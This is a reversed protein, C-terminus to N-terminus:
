LFVYLLIVSVIIIFFSNIQAIAHRDIVVAMASSPIHSGLRILSRMFSM